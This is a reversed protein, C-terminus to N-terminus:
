RPRRNLLAEWIAAYRPKTGMCPWYPELTFLAGRSDLTPGACRRALRYMGASTAERWLASALAKYSRKTAAPLALFGGEAGDHTLKYLDGEAYEFM